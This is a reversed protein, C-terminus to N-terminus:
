EGDPHADSQKAPRLEDLQRTLAANAHLLDSILHHESEILDDTLRRTQARAKAAIDPAVALHQKAMDHDVVVIHHLLWHVLYAILSPSVACRGCEFDVTFDKLVGRFYAHEARHRAVFEPDFDGCEMVREELAFHNCAYDALHLLLKGTTKAEHSFKKTELANIMDILERHQADIEEIGIAFSDNWQVPEM